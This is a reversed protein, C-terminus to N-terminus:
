TTCSSAPKRAAARCVVRRRRAAPAAARARARVRRRRLLAGAELLDAIDREEDRPEEGVGEGCARRRRSSRRADAAARVAGQAPVLGVCERRDEGLQGVLEDAEDVHQGLDALARGARRVGVQQAQVLPPQLGAAAAAALQQDLAADNGVGREPAPADLLVCRDDKAATAMRCVEAM